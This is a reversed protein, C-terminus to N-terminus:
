LILSNIVDNYADLTELIKYSVIFRDWERRRSLNRMLDIAVAGTCEFSADLYKLKM